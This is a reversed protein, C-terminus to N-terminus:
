KATTKRPIKIKKTPTPTQPRNYKKYTQKQITTKIKNKVTSDEFETRPVVLLFM